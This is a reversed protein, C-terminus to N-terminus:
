RSTTLDRAQNGFFRRTGFILMFRQDVRLDVRVGVMSPRRRGFDAGRLTRSGCVTERLVARRVVNQRGYDAMRPTDLNIFGRQVARMKIAM